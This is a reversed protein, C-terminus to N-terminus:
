LNKGKNIMPREIILYTGISLIVVIMSILPLLYIYISKIDNFDILIKFLIYLILGHTLYISYSIEGIIRSYKLTLLGFITNGYVIMAFFISLGLFQINGYSTKFNLLIYILIILSAISFYWKNFNIYKIYKNYELINIIYGLYFLIFFKSTITTLGFFSISTPYLFRYLLYFGLVIMIYRIKNLYFIIPLCLYFFWEYPLTWTVSATIRYVDHYDNLSGRVFLLWKFIQKFFLQIDVNLNFGNKYFIILIMILVVFYYLPALRLFRKVIFKKIEFKHQHIKRFFLYGTILFFVAVSSQGINNLLDSPPRIWEGNVHWYYTIFYHHIFVGMALYGRLGDITKIHGINDSFQKQVINNNIIPMLFIFALFILFIEIMITILVMTLYIM